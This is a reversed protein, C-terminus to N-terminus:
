ASYTVSVNVVNTNVVPQDGGTFLVANYLVGTTGDKTNTSVGFMGKITGSGTFTFSSASSTAKSGGSAASFALAPRNGSYTPANALGAEKWANTGNIQAATDAAAIASYSVSSILGCYWAATYSSGGLYKDLLDNKGQTVVTNEAVETWKVRSFQMAEQFFAEAEQLLHTTFINGVIPIRGIRSFQARERLLNAKNLLATYRDMAWPLGERCVVTFIARPAKMVEVASVTDVLACGATANVAISDSAHSM